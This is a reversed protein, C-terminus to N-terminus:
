NWANFQGSVIKLYENETMIGDIAVMRFIHLYENGVTVFLPFPSFSSFYLQVREYYCEIM